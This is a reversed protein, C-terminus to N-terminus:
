PADCMACNPRASRGGQSEHFSKARECDIQVLRPYAAAVQRAIEADVAAQAEAETKACKKVYRKENEKEFQDIEDGIDAAHRKEHKLVFDENWSAAYTKCRPTADEPPVWELATIVIKPQKAVKISFLEEVCWEEFTTQCQYGFCALGSPCEAFCRSKDTYDQKNKPCPCTGRWQSTVRRTDVVATLPLRSGAPTCGPGSELGEAYTYGIVDSQRRGTADYVGRGLSANYRECEGKIVNRPDRKFEYPLSTARRARRPAIRRRAGLGSAPVVAAGFGAIAFARAGIRLAGVRSVRPAPDALASGAAVDLGAPDGTGAWAVRGDRDIAVAYPTGPVRWDARLAEWLGARVMPGLAAALEAEGDVPAVAVAVELAPLARDLEVLRPIAAHCAPCDPAVFAVLVPRTGAIGPVGPRSGLAPGPVQSRRRARQLTLVILAVGAGLVAGAPTIPGAAVSAGAALAVLALVANRAALRRGIRSEALEGFCGCDEGELRGRVALVGLALAALLLGAAPLGERPTLVCWAAVAAEALPLARFVLGGRRGPGGIRVSMLRWGDGVLWKSGASVALMAAFSGAIVHLTLQFM